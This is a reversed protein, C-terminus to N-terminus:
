FVGPAPLGPAGFVPDNWPDDQPDNEPLDWPDDSSEQVPAPADTDAIKGGMRFDGREPEYILEYKAASFGGSFSFDTDTTYFRGNADQYFGNLDDSIELLYPKGGSVSYVRTHSSFTLSSHTFWFFGRNGCVRFCGDASEDYSQATPDYISTLKGYADIFYVCEITHSFFTEGVTTLAFAEYLGDGDYDAYKWLAIPDGEGEVIRRLVDEPLAVTGSVPETAATTTTETTTTTEETTTTLETTTTTETVTPLTESGAASSGNEADEAAKVSMRYVLFVATGIVVLFLLFVASLMGAASGRRRRGSSYSESEEFDDDCLPAGCHKCFNYFGEIEADCEKCRM